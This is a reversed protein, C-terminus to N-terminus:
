RLREWTERGNNEKSVTNIKNIKKKLKREKKKVNNNIKKDEKTNKRQEQERKDDIIDKNVHVFLCCTSKKGVIFCASYNYLLDFGFSSCNNKGQILDGGKKNKTKM